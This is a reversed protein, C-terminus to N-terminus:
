RGPSGLQDWRPRADVCSTCESEHRDLWRSWAGRRRSVYHFLREAHRENGPRSLRYAWRRYRATAWLVMLFAPPGVWVRGSGDVVILETGLGKVAAFRRRAELSGGALLEVPVLCPQTALWDRCRLCFTCREDYLVTLRAADAPAASASGATTRTDM